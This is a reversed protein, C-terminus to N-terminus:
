GMSSIRDEALYLRATVAFRTASNRSLKLSAPFLFDFTSVRQFERGGSCAATSIKGHQPEFEQARCIAARLGESMVRADSM